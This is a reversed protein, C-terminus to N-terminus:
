EKFYRVAPLRTGLALFVRYRSYRSGDGRYRAGLFGTGLCIMRGTSEGTRLFTLVFLVIPVPPVMIVYSVQVTSEECVQIALRNRTLNIWCCARDHAGDLADKGREYDDSHRNHDQYTTLVNSTSGGM